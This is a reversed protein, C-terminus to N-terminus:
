RNLEVLKKQVAGARKPDMLSLWFPVVSTAGLEASIDNVAILTDILLVDDFEVLIEVASQPPMNMLDSAVQRVRENKNEFHKTIENLSKKQAELDNRAIEITAIKDALEQSRLELDQNQKVLDVELKKIAAEKKELRLKDILFTDDIIEVEKVGQRNRTVMSVLETIVTTNIVNIRELWYWTGASLILVVLFLLVVQMAVKM